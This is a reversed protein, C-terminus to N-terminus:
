AARLPTQRHAVRTEKCCLTAHKAGSARGPATTSRGSSQSRCGPTSTSRACTVPASECRWARACHSTLKSRPTSLQTAREPAERRKLLRRVCHAPMHGSTCRRRRAGVAAPTRRQAHPAEAAHCPRRARARQAASRRAARGARRCRRYRARAQTRAARQKSRRLMARLTADEQLSRSFACARCSTTQATRCSLM